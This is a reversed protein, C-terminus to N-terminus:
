LQLVGERVRLPAWDLARQTCIQCHKETAGQEWTCDYNDDGDLQVINWTCDCNTLCTSTGDGPMAPLALMKVAGRWYPTKISQAYMEARSNWGAQWQEGDQLVIGFKGLFRLQTALDSTVATRMEPTLTEVGAGALMAAAHYRALQRSVEQQWDGVGNPYSAELADTATAILRSLRDLLWRLPAPVDPM